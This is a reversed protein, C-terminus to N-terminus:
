AAPPAVAILGRRHLQVHADVGDGEMHLVDVGLQLHVGFGFGHRASQAFIQQSLDEREEADGRFLHNKGFRRETYERIHRGSELFAGASFM